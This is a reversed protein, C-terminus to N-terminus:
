RTAADRGGATARRRRLLRVVTIAGLVGLAALVTVLTLLWAPWPGREPSGAVRPTAALLLGTAARVEFMACQQTGLECSTSPDVRTLLTSPGGAIPTEYFSTAEYDVYTAVSTASRWGLMTGGAIPTGTPRTGGDDGIEVFSIPSDDFGTRYATETGGQLNQWNEPTWAVTALLRGDPSWAAQPTIGQGPPMALARAGSGDAGVIWTQLKSQVVMRDGSASYAVAQVPSFQPMTTTRGTDLDTVALMGVRGAESQIEGMAADNPLRPLVSYAVQRGDPSLALLHVARPAALPVATQRGTRLDVVTFASTLTGPEAMLVFTGDPALLWPRYGTKRGTDAADLQRYSNRDAGLAIPQWVNFLEGNGFHYILIARGAPDHSVTSTLHSYGAITDPLQPGSPGATAPLHALRNVAVAQVAGALGAVLVVAALIARWRRRRVSRRGATIIQAVTPPPPAASVDVAHFLEPLREDIM